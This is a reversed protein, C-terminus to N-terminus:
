FSVGIAHAGMSLIHFKGVVALGRYFVPQNLIGSDRFVADRRSAPSFSLRYCWIFIRVAGVIWCSTLLVASHFKGQTGTLVPSSSPILVIIKRRSQIPIAYRAHECCRRGQWVFGM